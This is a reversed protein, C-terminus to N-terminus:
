LVEEFVQGSRTSTQVKMGYPGVNKSRIQSLLDELTEKDSQGEPESSGGHPFDINKVIMGLADALDVTSGYPFDRLERRLETHHPRMYLDGRMAIPQIGRIRAEKKDGSGPRFEEIPLYSEREQAEKQLFHKLAEQYAVVEVFVQFPQHSGYLRFIEEILESPNLKSVVYEVIYLKRPPCAKAVIVASNASSDKKSIAPDVAMYTRGEEPLIDYTKFWDEKFVMRSADYPHNLYQSSFIYTGQLQKIEKLTAKDFREPYVPEGDETGDETAALEFRIFPPMENDIIHQIVDYKAWRTGINLLEGSKPNALLSVASRHFGIAKEVDERSPLAESGKLDDKKPAIIDDEIILDFHRSVIATGVGAAEFTAEPHAEDRPLQAATDSWRAKNTSDWVLEPFLWRLLACQEWLTRIVNIRKQANTIVNQVILIRMNPNHWPDASRQEVYEARPPLTRWMSYGITAFTTKLFGRPLTVQKRREERQLFSALDGHVHPVIWDFGLIARHFFYFSNLALERLESQSKGTAQTMQKPTTGYTSM